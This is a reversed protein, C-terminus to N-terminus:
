YFIFFIRYGVRAKTVALIGLQRQQSGSSPPQCGPALSPLGVPAEAQCLFDLLLVTETVSSWALVSCGLRSLYKQHKLNSLFRYHKQPPLRIRIRFLLFSNRLLLFSPLFLCLSIIVSVNRSLRLFGTVETNESMSKQSQYQWHLTQWGTPCWVM